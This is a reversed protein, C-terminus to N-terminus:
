RTTSRTSENGLRDVSTVAAETVGVPLAMTTTGAPVVTNEWGKETRTYVVYWFPQEGAAPTWTLSDGSRSVTPAAPARNDLWPSAPPLAKRSYVGGKLKEALGNDATLSKMSFLVNGTSGPNGRTVLIQNVTEQATNPDDKKVGSISNGPWLHRGMTNESAWWQLLLPYSQAERGIPWYLQPTFYDLWGENLWLKADAYLVAYQDLGRIDSPYGPRWIGFPSIGFQVQKKEAKIGAYLDRVFDDVAKRRWDDRSLKGGSAQYRAWSEDDPFPKEDNYSSYPYFYDDMHVGDIDYRRVVDLMVERSIKQVEPEAPDMWYYGDNGLKKVLDPRAKVIHNDPVATKGSPHWARYPNFWCHLQIGRKHSEAVWFELPDYFPEPAKGATGTLYESWPELDSKYLADAAPRVQLVVANLNLEAVKDLIAIAEARQEDPTLNKKSPWDINAVTAVWVARFERRPGPIQDEVSSGKKATPVAVTSKASDAGHMCGSLLMAALACTALGMGKTLRKLM